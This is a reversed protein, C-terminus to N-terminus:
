NRKLSVRTGPTLDQDASVGNWRCIKKLKVGFKQSISRPSDGEQVRYSDEKCRNRKPQTYVVDGPKVKYNKGFDNFKRVIMPHLDLDRAISEITEGDKVVTFQINNQSIQISRNASITIEKSTDIAGAGKKSKPNKKSQSTL